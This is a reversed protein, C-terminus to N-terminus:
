LNNYVITSLKEYTGVAKYFRVDKDLTKILTVPEVLVDEYLSRPLEFTKMNPFGRQVKSRAASANLNRFQTKVTM